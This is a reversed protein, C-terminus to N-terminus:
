LNQVMDMVIDVSQLRAHVYMGPTERVDSKCRFDMILMLASVVSKNRKATYFPSMHAFMCFQQFPGRQHLALLEWHM